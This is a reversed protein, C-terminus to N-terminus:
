LGFAQNLKGIAARVPGMANAAIGLALAVLWGVRRM